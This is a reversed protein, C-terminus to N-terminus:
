PHGGSLIADVIYRSVDVSKERYSRAIKESDRSLAKEIESDANTLFTNWDLYCNLLGLKKLGIMNGLRNVRSSILFAPRGLLSSEVAMTPSEGLFVFAGAMVAHMSEIPTKLLRKEFRASLPIASHIFVEGYKSLLDCLRDLSEETVGSVDEDHLADLKVVRIISYREPLGLRHREEKARNFDFDQLYALEHIGSYRIQKKGADNLYFEPTYIRDAFCFAIRNTLVADETDTFLLNRTRMIWAPFSTSIGSISAVVDVEERLILGAIKMWRSLLEFIRGLWGTAPSSLSTFAIGMRTLLSDTIEKNRTVVTVAHGQGRLRAIARNFFHVHAPHGIEILIKM